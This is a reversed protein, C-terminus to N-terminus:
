LSALPGFHRCQNLLAHFSADLGADKMHGYILRFGALLAQRATDRGSAPEVAPREQLKLNALPGSRRLRNLLQPFTVGEDEGLEATTQYDYLIALGALVQQLAQRKKETLQPSDPTVNGRGNRAFEFLDEADMVSYWVPLRASATMLQMFSQWPRGFRGGRIVTCGASWKGVQATTGGAHINIGFFGTEVFDKGDRIFNRNTDRWISVKAAQVLAPYGKHRGLTYRYQGNLLHACGRQPEPHQTWYRGPDVTGLFCRCVPQGASGQGFLVLTDNYRDPEEAVLQVTSGQGAPIASRLGVLNWVSPQTDARYALSTLYSALLDPQLDLTRM